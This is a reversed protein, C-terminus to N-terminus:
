HHYRREKVPDAQQPSSPSDSFARVAEALDGLGCLTQELEVGLYYAAEDQRCYIVEGLILSDDVEFKLATGIAVPCQLELGIGRASVNRIRAPLRIDPEGFVTIWISQNAEFRPGRRQNMILMDAPPFPLNLARAAISQGITGTAPQHTRKQPAADRGKADYAPRGRNFVGSGPM